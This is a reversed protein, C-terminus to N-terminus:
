VQGKEFNKLFVTAYPLPCFQLQALRAQGNRVAGAICRKIHNKTNTLNIRVSPIYRHLTAPQRPLMSELFPDGSFIDVKGVCLRHQQMYLNAIVHNVFAPVSEVKMCTYRCLRQMQSVVGHAYGQAIVLCKQRSIVIKPRSNRVEDCKTLVLSDREMVDLFIPSQSDVCQKIYRWYQSYLTRLTRMDEEDELSKRVDSGPFLCGIIEAAKAVLLKEAKAVEATAISGEPVPGTFLRLSQVIPNTPKGVPRARPASQQENWEGKFLSHNIGVV